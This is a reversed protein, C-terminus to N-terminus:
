FYKKLVLLLTNGGTLVISNYLSLRIDADCMNISTSVLQSAGLMAHDFLSEALKLRECGFDQHYGSPFEYNKSPIQSTTCEDFPAMLLATTSMQFDQVLNYQMYRQWSPTLKEPLKKMTFRPPERERVTDKTAIAYAPTLDIGQSELYQRCQQSLFDAGLPSKVIAERLM